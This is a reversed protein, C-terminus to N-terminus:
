PADELAGCVFELQESRPPAETWVIARYTKVLKGCAGMKLPADELCGRARLENLRACISGEKRGLRAALEQLSPGVHAHPWDRVAQWVERQLGRLQEQISRQALRSTYAIM